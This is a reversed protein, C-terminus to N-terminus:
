ALYLNMMETKVWPLFLFFSDGNLPSAASYLYFNLYGLNVPATFRVGKPAWGRGLFSQIGFRIEDFFFM